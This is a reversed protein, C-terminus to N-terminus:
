FFILSVLVKKGLKELEHVMNYADDVYNHENFEDFEEDNDSEYAGHGQIHIDDDSFAEGNYTWRTYHMSMGNCNIHQLVDKQDHRALNHCRTCPCLIAEDEKAHQGVFKIFENCGKVYPGTFKKADKIWNRDMVQLEIKLM